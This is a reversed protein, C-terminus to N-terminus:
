NKAAPADANTASPALAIDVRRDEQWGGEDKGSADLEGRSTLKMRTRGVGASELYGAVRAARKEGLVMNYEQEGRADARGVLELGRGRLAGESLCTALQVLMDREAPLLTDDNTGFHQKAGTAHLHCLEALEGSVQIGGEQVPDAEITAEPAAIMPIAALDTKPTPTPAIKKVTANSPAASPKASETCGVLNMAFAVTLAAAPISLRM